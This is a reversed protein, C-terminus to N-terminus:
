SMAMDACRKRWKDSVDVARSSASSYLRRLQIKTRRSGDGISDCGLVVWGTLEGGCYM